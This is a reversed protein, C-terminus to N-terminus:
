VRKKESVISIERYPTHTHTCAHLTPIPLHNSIIQGETLLLFWYVVKQAARRFPTARIYSKVLKYILIDLPVVRNDDRLWPHASM